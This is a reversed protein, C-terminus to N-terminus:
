PETPQQRGGFKRLHYTFSLLFYRTLVETKVDEVYNLEVQRGVSRNAKLMDFVTLRLEGTRNKLFLKAIGANWLPINQNFSAASGRNMIYDLDNSFVWGSKTTFTPEVSLRETFFNVNERTSNIYRTFNLGTSNSLVLDFYDGLNLTARVTGGTLHRDTFFKVDNFLNVERIDRAYLYFSLNAKPDKFTRSYNVSVSVDHAGDLNQPKAYQGGPILSFGEVAIPSTGTNFVVTNAIRNAIATANMNVTLNSNNHTIVKNYYLTLNNYYEQKLDPNGARVYLLSSNNVVDQLQTIYPQQTWTRYNMRMYTSKGKRYQLSANPLWNIFPRSISTGKTINDSVLRAEQLYLGGGFSWNRNLQHRYNMGGRDYFNDNAFSNTLSSVLISYLGTLRDRRYTGQDSGNDNQSKTYFFELQDKASLPETYSLTAGWKKGDVYTNSTQDLTDKGRAYRDNFSLTLGDRDSTNISHTLNLSMTRGRKNFRHRYLVSSNWNYGSNGSNSTSKLESFPTILGKTTFSKSDTYYDSIQRSYDSRILLTHASDFMHDVEFGGRLNKNTNGSFIKATNFFSSDNVVFTERYRDRNNTIDIDSYFVNAAVKTKKNFEENYNIGGGLTTSIGSANGTYINSGGTAAKDGPNMNGLFDQVSFNQNNINNYQAIFSIKREGNIRNASIANATRNDTGYAFSSKGFVGKKRDKKTIINITRIRNGDDFGSFQSQDSMADIVQIKEIIDAPLNRTALKPDNGYFPKGDVLIRTVPEGQNKISGDRDVELGPVKKLLDETSANPLTKFQAANFETTDGMIAMTSSRIIISELLNAFRQMTLVGMNISSLSEALVVAKGFPVFGSYSIKLYYKGNPIANLTFNGTADTVVSKFKSSDPMTLLEVSAGKLGTKSVTDAVDMVRGNISGSSQAFLETSFNLVLAVVFFGVYLRNRQYV